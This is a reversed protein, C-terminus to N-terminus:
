NKVAVKTAEPDTMGGFNAQVGEMVAKIGAEDLQQILADLQPRTTINPVPEGNVAVVYTVPFVMNVFVSNAAANGGLMEIMKYQALVGPRRLTIMRGDIAEVTVEANAAMTAVQSPSAPAGPSEHLTVKLDTM